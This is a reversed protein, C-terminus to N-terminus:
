NSPSAGGAITVMGFAEEFVFLVIVQDAYGVGGCWRL